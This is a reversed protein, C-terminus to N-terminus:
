SQHEHIRRKRLLSFRAGSRLREYAIAAPLTLRIETGAGAESWFELRAGIGRARERVGPLGWHGARGGDKIIKPDMGKGDDRVILRFLDNEYRIEVEIEHARAHRFANRLLERAIRGIEDKIMPPLGRREGEVVVEFRPSGDEAHNSSALEQGTTILMQDLENEASLSPRLGQISNRSEDLSQETRILAADLAQAAQEPRNPLMNRAAQFRFALGHFSQLLTDHLDRAIRTREGVRAELTIDFQHHLQRVRWRYAAWLLALFVTACLARFWNTQYYAPAVYFDLKAASDNWVGDSNCAIVRFSYRGPPLDTYFAQRRTGADKWDRDYGDLRYRFKVRQPITFTPSTYDIQLDRPHPSLKLNDTATFENRDVIVSEIYTAAPLAKQSLRSPDVMQVWVGSAFWVRGDSSYAASNYDPRGAQAGDSEGYVRTQVIVEPNTWWRQLESDPLEVIGCDTYLWWRKERDQIFSTVFNCPLGNKTTMRQVKGQRVGVLGDASGALVSGDANAIIQRIFPDGKANLPFTKLVGHRFLALDGKLTGIWIGGQPDPALTRGTPVQSAPFEERVQFDRIRVLKGPNGACEAWINGDIDEAMGVVLGLPKHNPEPLRRFRGNKFLFLGDDVGVWMNGARDELMSAVLSGPLGDGTRISSITGNKEIRDLSGTSAVWITGDRGALVGMPVNGLGELTSFSAIRPDRFNDIGDPTAAWLIGERDEFLATVNDSSLGETRGYHDVVNGCIRFIGQGVTGVWLSGDRDFIMNHVALKSGDFSPTVFPQFVGKTSRGLGRGPGERLIGVWLSGDPGRALGAIGAQGANSKLGEIPYTESVGDHWHVLATQGGLWFGGKGDALISNVPSIPIGDAKGFCKVTRDTVHCLPLDSISNNGRVVWISGDDDESFNQLNRLGQLEFQSTVVRGKLHVIGRLGFVWLGGGHDGFVQVIQGFPAGKTISGGNPPGDWSTFRLGDFTMMDGSTFWLFGDSTQAIGYGAPKVNDQEMRWSTHIYQTVRENPDLAHVSGALLWICALHCALAAAITTRPLSVRLLLRRRSAIKGM